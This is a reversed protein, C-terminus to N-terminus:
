KILGIAFVTPIKHLDPKEKKWEKIPKTVLIQDPSTLNAGVCLLTEPGLVQLLSDFLQMNRYPTEMFLQTVFSRYLERELDKLKAQRAERSIPLYGHFTFAQGNFGSGMLTLVMSNAGPIPMVKMGIEQAFGVALAGPDAIGPCGAESLVIGIHGNTHLFKVQKQVKGPDSDKNLEWLILDDIVVGTKLSAIFRRATRLEEVFYHKCNAVLEATIPVTSLLATDPALPTPILYLM